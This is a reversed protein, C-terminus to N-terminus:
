DIKVIKLKLNEVANKYIENDKKNLYIMFSDYIADIYNKEVIEKRIHDYKVYYVCATLMLARDLKTNPSYIWLPKLQLFDNLIEKTVGDQTMTMPQAGNAVTIVNAFADANKIIENYFKIEEDDYLYPKTHWKISEIMVERQRNTINFIEADYKKLIEAGLDGHDISKKDNYTQYLKWQEFRGVDHLLGILYCFNRQEKNLKFTCAISYCKEAVSYCHIIKRLINSNSTDYQNVFDWFFKNYNQITDNRIM